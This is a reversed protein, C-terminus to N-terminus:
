ADPPSGDDAAPAQKDTDFPTVKVTRIFTEFESRGHPVEARDHVAVAQDILLDQLADPITDWQLVLAGGLRRLFHEQAESYRLTKAVM